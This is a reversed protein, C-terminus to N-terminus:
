QRLAHTALYEFCCAKERVQQSDCTGLLLYHLRGWLFVTASTITVEAPAEYLLHAKGPGLPVVQPPALDSPPCFGCSVNCQHAFECSPCFLSACFNASPMAECELSSTDVCAAQRPSLALGSPALHSVWLKAGPAVFLLHPNGDVDQFVSAGGAVSALAAEAPTCVVADDAIQAGLQGGGLHTLTAVGVCDEHGLASGWPTFTPLRVTFYVLGAYHWVFPADLGLSRGDLRQHWLSGNSPHPASVNVGLISPASAWEASGPAAYLVSLGQGPIPESVLLFLFGDLDFANSVRGSVRPATDAHRVPLSSRCVGPDCPCAGDFAFEPRTCESCPRCYGIRVKTDIGFLLEPSACFLDCGLKHAHRGCEDHSRCTGLSPFEFHNRGRRAVTPWDLGYAEAEAEAAAAAGLVAAAAWRALCRVM